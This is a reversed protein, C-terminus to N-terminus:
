QDAIHGGDIPDPALVFEVGAKALLEHQRHGLLVVAAVAAPPVLFPGVRRADRVLFQRSYFLHIAM